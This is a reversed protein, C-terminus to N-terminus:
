KLSFNDRVQDIISLMSKWNDDIDGTTRWSNSVNVAWNAPTDYGWELNMSYDLSFDIDVYVYWM